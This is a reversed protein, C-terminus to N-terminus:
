SKVSVDWPDELSIHKVYLDSKQPPPQDLSINVATNFLPPTGLRQTIEYPSCSDHSLGELRFAQLEHAMEPISKLSLNIRNILMNLTPGATTSLEPISRAQGSVIHGFLVDSTNALLELTLAWALDIVTATTVEHKSCFSSFDNRRTSPLGLTCILPSSHNDLVPDSTLCKLNCPSCGELKQAWFTIDAEKDAAVHRAIFFRYATVPPLHGPNLYERILEQQLLSNTWGDTLAHNIKLECSVAGSNLATITLLPLRSHHIGSLSLASGGLSDLIEVANSTSRLVVQVPANNEEINVFLTRLISHRKVVRKWAEALRYPDVSSGTNSGIEFNLLLSFLQPDHSQYELMHTQMSSCPYVDAVNSAGGPLQPLIELTLKNMSEIDLSLLPFDPTSIDFHKLSQDSKAEELFEKTKSGWNFILDQYKMNSNFHVCFAVSSSSLEIDIDVFGCGSRFQQSQSFLDIESFFADYSNDICFPKYHIFIDPYTSHAGDQHIFTQHSKKIGALVEGPATQQFLDDTSFSPIEHYISFPGVTDLFKTGNSGLRRGDTELYIIPTAYDVFVRRFAYILAASVKDLISQVLSYELAGASLSLDSIDMSFQYRMDQRPPGIETLGWYELKEGPLELRFPLKSVAGSIKDNWQQFTSEIQLDVRKILSRQLHAQITSWSQEDAVLRHTVIYIFSGAETRFIDASFVPGNTIDIRDHATRIIADQEEESVARSQTFLLRYSDEPDAIRYKLSGDITVFRARLMPHALILKDFARQIETRPLEILTQILSCRHEKMTSISSDYLSLLYKQAPALSFETALSASDDALQVVECLRWLTRSLLLDQITFNLGRKKSLAVVKIASLSNGNLTFFSTHPNIKHEEFELVESWVQRLPEYINAYQEPIHSTTIDSEGFIDQTIVAAQADDIHEIWQKVTKRDLKGSNNLPIDDVVVWYSPIMYDPVERSLRERLQKLLTKTGTSSMADSLRPSADKCTSLKNDNLSLITILQRQLPGAKPVYAMITTLSSLKSLRREVEGLEVRNGRVKVQNDKRGVLQMSGDLNYFALDGTRYIRDSTAFPQMSRLWSCTVFAASTAAEDDLYGKGLSPGSVVVEGVCGVPALQEHNETEVIWNNGGCATGVSTPSTNPTFDSKVSCYICTETPGYANVLQLKDAWRRVNDSNAAEGVFILTKLSPVEEPDIVQAVSPTLQACNVDLERIVGPLDNLRSDESPVCVCGGHCLTMLGESISPDFTHASFQLSRWQPSCGLARGQEIIGTCLSGHSMVVGKPEGTSGSTFLVYATDDPRALSTATPGPATFQRSTAAEIMLTEPVIVNDPILTKMKGAMNKSSLIVTAKAKETIQRLRDMPFKHDLPVWAGGAKLVALISVTMWKSKEFCLPVLVGPGVGIFALHAALASSQYNLAEFTMDGDWARLALAEPSSRAQSEFMANATQRVASPQFRNWSQIQAHDSESFCRISRVPTQPDLHCLQNLIMHFQAALIEVSQETHIRPDYWLCVQYSYDSTTCENVLAFDYEFPLGVGEVPSIDIKSLTERIVDESDMQVILLNQFDTARIGSDGHRRRVNLSGYHEYPMMDIAQQRIQQLFGAVTVEEDDFRQRIPVATITPGPVDKVIGDFASRGSLTAAFSVDTNHSRLSLLVGWAARLLLSKTINFKRHNWDFQFSRFLHASALPEFEKYPLSPFQSSSAENVQRSWFEDAAEMDIQQIQQIFTNFMPRTPPEPNGSYVKVVDDLIYTLSTADIVAHHVTIALYIQTSSADHILAFRILDDAELMSKKRDEKLYTELSDSETWHVSTKIVCQLMGHPPEQVIRTRLVPNSQVVTEWADKFSQLDVDHGISYVLQTMYSDRGGQSVAIMAEQLPSCPYIDEIQDEHISCKKAIKTCLTQLLNDSTNQRRLLSFEPVGAVEDSQHVLPHSKTAMEHLTPYEFVDQITLGLYKKKALSVLESAIVSNGGIDFFSTEEDIDDPDESLADAWLGRLITKTSDLHDFVSSASSVPGSSELSTTTASSSLLSILPTEQMKTPWAFRFQQIWTSFNLLALEV